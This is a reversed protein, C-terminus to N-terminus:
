HGSLLVTLLGSGGVSLIMGIGVLIYDRREGLRIRTEHDDLRGDIGDLRQTHTSLAAHLMAKMASVDERIAVMERYQDAATIVVSGDPASGTM